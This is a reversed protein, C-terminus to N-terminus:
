PAITRVCQLPIRSLDIVPNTISCTYYNLKRALVSITTVDYVSPKPLEISTSLKWPLWRTYKEGWVMM